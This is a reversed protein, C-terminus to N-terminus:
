YYWDHGKAGKKNARPHGKLKITEIQDDIIESLKKYKEIKIRTEEVQPTINIKTSDLPQLGILDLYWNDDNEKKSKYFYVYGTDNQVSIKRKEIFLISDKKVNFNTGYLQSESMLSQDLYQKPFLDILKNYFLSQYLYSRNILNSALYTWVSDNIIIGYRAKNVAIDTQFKFDKVSNLKNFFFEVDTKTYFPLLITAFNLLDENGRNEFSEYRYRNTSNKSLNNQEVSIQKKLEIKAERLLQKYNKKYRKSKIKNAMILESLLAYTPTKYQKVFTYNLLDPFLYTGINLSDYFPTFINYVEYNNSALPIDQELLKLFLTTSKKTTQKTLAQLIAIQYMATDESQAYLDKLFITIDQKDIHGLDTIMQKKIDIQKETFPYSKIIKKMPDFDNDNFNIHSQVSELAQAKTISDESYINKLFLKSKDEFISQGVLTDFPTFSNFFSHIFESQPSITDINAKVSYMLGHKIIYKALILRSSNTDVLSIDLTYVGNKTTPKFDRIKLKKVDEYFERENEWLSDINKYESYDHYKYCKVSIREFNESYYIRSESKSKYSEDEKEKQDNKQKIQYAKKYTDSYKTPYLYNSNVSFLLTSDTKNKFPFVYKFPNFEISNFFRSKDENNANVCVLLYYYAGKIIIKLNLSEGNPTKSFTTATPYINSYDFIIANTDMDLDDLFVHILREMEYNDEEIFSFDHLSSRKVLYYAKSEFDYAELEPHNYLSTIKDNNKIHYYNPVSISFDGKYSSISSWTHSKQQHITINDFFGDSQEKVFDKKGGMKFIFANMPTYVFRYRQYNGNTTRNLIDLGNFGNTVIQKKSIINGPISEYLLSDIKLQYDKINLGFLYNYTSIQKVSFYSGNTLEPSFFQRQNNDSSPTEYMTGPVRLSFLDSNYNHNYAIHTVKKDFSEKIEKAKDTITTQMPEVTYGKNRLYQIVGKNGGLHAAGIGIFLSINEKQIFSDIKVAMIDNRIDLMYKLFNDTNIQNHLSDLLFVNKSRYANEILERTDKEETMKDFWAATEKKNADPLSGMKSLQTTEPFNELSYVKKNNKKGTQYIFLDLFTEEEFDLQSKNERYLMWNSLYHDEQIYKSLKKNAPNSIKFADQYFGKYTQYQFGYRGLYDNAHESNFIEDLWIIPNSELAVADVEIISEFFEEGLHFALRGSIHMTGYLYSIKKTNTNTIKWLLSNQNKQALTLFPALLFILLLIKM